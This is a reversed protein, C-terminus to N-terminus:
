ITDKNHVKTAKKIQINVIQGNRANLYSHFSVSNIQILKCFSSMM